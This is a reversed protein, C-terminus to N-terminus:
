VCAQHVIQTKGSGFMGAFETTSQSELGGNLIRDLEKSGTSLKWVTRRQNLLDMGSKFGLDCLERAHAIIKAAAKESIGDIEALEGISATAIKMFDTYGAEILKEAISPGVGPIDTLKDAM